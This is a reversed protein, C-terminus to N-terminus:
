ADGLVERAKKRAVKVLDFVYGGLFSPAEGSKWEDVAETAEMMGRLAEELRANKAERQLDAIVINWAKVADDETRCHPGQALCDCQVYFRRKVGVLEALAVGHSGCFPCPKIETTMM